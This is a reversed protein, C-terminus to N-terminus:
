SSMSSRGERALWAMFAAHPPTWDDPTILDAQWEAGKQAEYTRMTLRGIEEEGERLVFTMGHRDLPVLSLARQHFDVDFEVISHRSFPRDPDFAHVRNKRKASVLQEERHYLWYRFQTWPAPLKMQYDAWDDQGKLNHVFFNAKRFIAVERNDQGIRLYQKRLNRADVQYEM